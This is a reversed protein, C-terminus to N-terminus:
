FFPDPGPRELQWNTLEAGRARSSVRLLESVAILPITAAIIRDVMNKSVAANALVSGTLVIVLQSGAVRSILM